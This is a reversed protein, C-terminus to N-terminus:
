DTFSCVKQENNDIILKICHAGAPNTNEKCRYPTKEYFDSICGGLCDSAHSCLKGGDEYKTICIYYPSAGARKYEGHSMTCTALNIINGPPFGVYINTFYTLVILIVISILSILIFKKM